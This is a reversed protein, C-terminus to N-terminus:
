RDHYWSVIFLVADGGTCRVPPREPLTGTKTIEIIYEKEGRPKVAAKCGAAEVFRMVNDRATRDDVTVLLRGGDPLSELAAKTRVVPMPCSLGRCDIETM